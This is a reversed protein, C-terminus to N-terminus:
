LCCIGFTLVHFENKSGRSGLAVSSMYMGCLDQLFSYLIHSYCTQQTVYQMNNARIEHMQELINSQSNEHKLKEKIFYFFITDNTVFFPLFFFLYPLM